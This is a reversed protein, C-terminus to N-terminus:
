DDPIQHGYQCCSPLENLDGIMYEEGTQPCWFLFAHSAGTEPHVHRFIDRSYVDLDDPSPAGVQRGTAAAWRLKMGEILLLNQICQLRLFEGEM